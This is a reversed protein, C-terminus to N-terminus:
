VSEEVTTHLHPRHLKPPHQHHVLCVLSGSMDSGDQPVNNPPFGDTQCISSLNDWTYNNNIIGANIIAQHHYSCGWMNLGTKIICTARCVPWWDWRWASLSMGMCGSKLIITRALLGPKGNRPFSKKAARPVTSCYQTLQSVM